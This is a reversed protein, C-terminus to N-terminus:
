ITSFDIEDSNNDPPKILLDSSTDSTCSLNSKVVSINSIGEIFDVNDTINNIKDIVIFKNNILYSLELDRYVFIIDAKDKQFERISILIYTGTSIIIGRGYKNKIGIQLKVPYITPTKGEMNVIQCLYRGDGQVKTIIAVHSDDDIEPTPIERNKGPNTSNKQSKAKNGGKLNKPM